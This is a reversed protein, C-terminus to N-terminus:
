SGTAVKQRDDFHHRIIPFRTEGAEQLAGRLHRTLGYMARADVPTESFDYYADVVLVPDGDHDHGANVEVDRIHMGGIRETLVQRVADHAAKSVDKASTTGLNAM